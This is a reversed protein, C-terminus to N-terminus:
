ILKTGKKIDKRAARSCSGMAVTVAAPAHHFLINPIRRM